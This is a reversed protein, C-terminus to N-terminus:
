ERLTRGTFKIFVDELSTKRFRVELINIGKGQLDDMVGSLEKAANQSPIFLTNGVANYGSLDENTSEVLVEIVDELGVLNKLNDPTDVALISGNDIIAVRDSLLEAEYMNHTTLILTKTRAMNRILNRILIRSQPDLGVVPEDLIVLPPDHILAMVISLRRKMGGSLNKALRDRVDTLGVLDLLYEARQKAIKPGMDHMEGIFVLQEICTLQDYLLTDQPAVGILDSVINRSFSEGNYTIKGSTPITVGCIMNITTSKGAGNPGLFGLIEGRNITLDIGDVVTFSGYTKTLGHTELVVEGVVM